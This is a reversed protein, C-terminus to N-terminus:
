LVLLKLFKTQPIAAIESFFYCKRLILLFKKKFALCNNTIVCMIEVPFIHFWIKLKSYFVL